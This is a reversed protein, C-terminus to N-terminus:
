GAFFRRVPVAFGPLVDEGPLVDDETLLVSAEASGRGEGARHVRVTRAAPDAVWVRRVGSSLYEAIKEEVEAPRDGPSLVEVVLDPAVDLFGDPRCRAARETSLFAVDAGRVTDPGRRTYIGADGSVVEGLGLGRREAFDAIERAFRVEVRAHARSTPHAHVITGRVLECRGLGPM